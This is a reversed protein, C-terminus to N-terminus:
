RAIPRARLRAATASAASLRRSGGRVPKSRPMGTRRWSWRCSTRRWRPRPGPPTAPACRRSSRAISGTRASPAASSRRATPISSRRIELSSALIRELRPSQAARVIVQHFEANLADFGELHQHWSMRRYQEEMREEIAELRDIDDDSMRLAARGAAEAELLARLRFIEAADEATFQAVRGQRYRALVVLGEAELRALAERLRPTRSVGTREALKAEQLTEGATLEGTIIAHRIQRYASEAARSMRAGDREGSEDDIDGPNLM